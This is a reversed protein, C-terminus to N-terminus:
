LYESSVLLTMTLKQLRYEICSWNGALTPYHKISACTCLNIEVLMSKLSSTPGLLLEKGAKKEAHPKMKDCIQQVKPTADSVQSVAGCMMM